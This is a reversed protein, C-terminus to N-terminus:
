PIAGNFEPIAQRGMHVKPYSTEAEQAESQSPASQALKDPECDLM